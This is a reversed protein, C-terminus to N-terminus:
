TSPCADSSANCSPRPGRAIAVVDRWDLRLQGQTAFAHLLKRATLQDSQNIAQNISRDISRNISQNMPQSISQDISRDISQSVSQSISQNVSQSISQIPNSQIPQIFQNAQNTSIFQISKGQSQKIQDSAIAGVWWGVGNGCTSDM